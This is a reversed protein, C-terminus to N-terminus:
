GATAEIHRLDPPHVHELSAGPGLHVCACLSSLAGSPRLSRDLVQAQPSQLRPQVGPRHPCLTQAAQQPRPCAKTLPDLQLNRSWVGGSVSSTGQAWSTYQPEPPWWGSLEATSGAASAAPGRRPASIVDLMQRRQLLPWRPWQPSPPEVNGINAKWLTFLPAHLSSRAGLCQSFSFHCLGPERRAQASPRPRVQAPLWPIEPFPSKWGAKGM